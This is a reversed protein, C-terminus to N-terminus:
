ELPICSNTLSDCFAALIADRPGNYEIICTYLGESAPLLVQDSHAPDFQSFFHGAQTEGGSDNILIQLNEVPQDSQNTFRCGVEGPPTDKWTPIHPASQIRQSKRPGAANVTGSIAGALVMVLSAITLHYLNLKLAM